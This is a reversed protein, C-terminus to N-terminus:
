KKYFTQRERFFLIAAFILFLLGFISGILLAFLFRMSEAFGGYVGTNIHNNDTIGLSARFELLKIYNYIWILLISFIPAFIGLITLVLPKKYKM